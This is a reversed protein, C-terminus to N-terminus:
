EQHHVMTLRFYTYQFLRVIFSMISMPVHDPTKTEIMENNASGLQELGALTSAPTLLDGNNGRELM